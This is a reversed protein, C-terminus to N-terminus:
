PSKNLLSVGFEQSQNIYVLDTKADGNTDGLALQASDGTYESSQAPFFAGDGFGIWYNINQSSGCSVALDSRGDGDLDAAALDSPFACVALPTAATLTGTGSNILVSVTNDDSSAM